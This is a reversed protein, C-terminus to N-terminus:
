FVSEQDVSSESEVRKLSTATKAQLRMLTHQQMWNYGFFIPCKQRARVDVAAFVIRIAILLM